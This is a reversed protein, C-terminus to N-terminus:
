EQMFSYPPWPGSVAVGYGQPALGKVRSRVAAGFQKARSRPVLFAADLLLPGGQVPMETAARRKAASAVAALRDYLDAVVERAHTAIEAAADRQAKKRQLYSAGSARRARTIRSSGSAARTGSGIEARDLVVRVGWEDHGTVRALAADINRRARQFHELARADNTFLTFLKMPLVAASKLFSEVVAEHAVAARSVWELDRLRANVADEAYQKAPADAVVAWLLRDGIPLLRVPGLGALGPPRRATSPRRKDAVLCYVYTLPPNM